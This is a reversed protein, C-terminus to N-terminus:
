TCPIQRSSIQSCAITQNQEDKIFPQVEVFCIRNTIKKSNLYSVNFIHNKYTGPNTLDNTPPDRTDYITYIGTTSDTRNNVRILYGEINFRGRNQLTLNLAVEGVGQYYSSEMINLSVGDPCKVAEEINVYFRLWGYVLGAISMGISILLVYSVILSIARKNTMQRSM